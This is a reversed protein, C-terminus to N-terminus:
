WPIDLKNNRRETDAMRHSPDIELTKMDGLKRSIEVTYTPHTWKWAPYVTRQLSDDEAPKAGFMLYMPIYAIEKSGDKYQVVLDVPMPMKGIRKLRIKSKGGEEWLSDIGYDITKIGNVWYEKYWDLKMDSQKEAIRIFDNVDPHKFRWQRYYELMIKDRVQEGVIYGLQALFVCGKSYAAAGYAANTNFHDAHTTLPEELGSKALGLYSNYNPAHNLPLIQAASDLAKIAAPNNGIRKKTVTERYYAEVKDTSWETFGEDMWAYLSENTGLLMQYWTHMWEHFATGLGPGTLLTGMPYEMGGDGGHIFSYQKYPYEGFNKTIFPYVVVAADAVEKWQNDVQEIYKSVDNSYRAKVNENLRSFQQAMFNEDRNYLVHITPGNPINRVLHRYEPDAAWMFDHVNPAIFHWVLKETAPRSVKTGSTEYGYGIQNTNQLYGTGGLIYNKDISIKVDFDGWVGYFERAVYPTPHWGQQDYECLKPYWQSMSYRVGNAADRGSRRVQIPVQTEFEMEFVVKAKPAIPRNLVVELITEHMIFKQAVGNMSLSGIKQYGIEDEKLKSIRDMVRSDWDPDGNIKLKGLERSRADMMSNPQFANWYLHYFVRKLTDPSNNTYELKQKGTFRNTKVDMNIEMTYKVRQQWRDAQASAASVAFISAALFGICKKM